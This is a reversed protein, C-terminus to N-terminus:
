RRSLEALTKELVPHVANPILAALPNLVFPRHLLEAHPIVLDPTRVIRDGYLVIDIDLTRPGWREARVRGAEREIDLCIALLAPPEPVAASVPLALVQNLYPGQAIPGLPATEEVPGALTWPVGRRTLSGRAFTLYREREGLNSGLALAIWAGVVGRGGTGDYNVAKAAPVVM